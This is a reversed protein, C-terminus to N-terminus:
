EPNSNIVSQFYLKKKVSKFYVTVKVNNSENEDAMCDISDVESQPLQYLAHLLETRVSANEPLSLSRMQNLFKEFTLDTKVSFEYPIVM